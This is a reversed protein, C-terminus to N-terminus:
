HMQGQLSTHGMMSRQTIRKFSLKIKQLLKQFLEQNLQHKPTIFLIIDSCDLIYSLFVNCFALMSYLQMKETILM